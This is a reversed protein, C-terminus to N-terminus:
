INGHDRTIGEAIEQQANKHRRESQGANRKRKRICIAADAARKGESNLKSEHNMYNLYTKKKQTASNRFLRNNARAPETSIEYNKVTPVIIDGSNKWIELCPKHFFSQVTDFYSYCAIVRLLNHLRGAPQNKCNGYSLSSVSFNAMACCKRVLM